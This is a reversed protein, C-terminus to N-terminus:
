EAPTRDVHTASLEGSDASALPFWAPSRLLEEVDALVAHHEDVLLCNVPSETWCGTNIYRVGSVTSDEAYHVHGCVATAVDRAKANGVANRRVHHRLVDYLIRWKKAYHAVHEPQAGLLIRISHLLKFLRIFAWHHPMVDDFDHGHAVLLRGDVTLAPVSEIQGLESTSFREDHNGPIWIVRRKVSQAAIRTLVAADAESLPKRVRDVTDGNLVLTVGPPLRELWEVFLDRLFYHSGIHLDSVIAFQM